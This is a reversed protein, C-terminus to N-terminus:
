KIVRGSHNPPNTQRQLWPTSAAMKCRGGASVTKESVQWVVVKRGGPQSHWRCAGSDCPEERKEVHYQEDTVIVYLSVSYLYKVRM